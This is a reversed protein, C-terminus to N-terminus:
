RFLREKIDKRNELDSALKAAAAAYAIDFYQQVMVRDTQMIEGLRGGVDAKRNHHRSTIFNRCTFPRTGYQRALDNIDNLQEIMSNHADTRMRDYYDPDAGVEENSKHQYEIHKEVRPWTQRLLRSHEANGGSQEIADELAHMRETFLIGSQVEVSKQRNDYSGIATNDYQALTYPSIILNSLRANAAADRRNWSIKSEYKEIFFKDYNAQKEPDDAFKQQAEPYKEAFDVEIAHYEKSLVKLQETASEREQDRLDEYSPLAPEDLNDWSTLVPSEQNRELGEKM